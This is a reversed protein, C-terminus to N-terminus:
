NTPREADTTEKKVPFTLPHDVDPVGDNIPYLLASPVCIVQKGAEAQAKFAAAATALSAVSTITEPIKTDTKQGVSAVMGNSLTASLEASGYGSEFDMSKKKDPLNVVTATTICDKTTSIFLYPKPDFYTLGQKGDFDIHACGTMMVAIVLISPAKLIRM